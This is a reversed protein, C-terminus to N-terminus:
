IGLMMGRKKGSEQFCGGLQSFSKFSYCSHSFLFIIKVKYAAECEDADTVSSCDEYIEGAHQIMEANGGTMKTAM